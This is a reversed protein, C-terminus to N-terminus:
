MVRSLILGLFWGFALAAIAVIALLGKVRLYRRRWGWGLSVSEIKTQEAEPDEKGKLIWVPGAERAIRSFDRGDLLIAAKSSYIVNPFPQRERHLRAALELGEPAYVEAYRGAFDALRGELDRHERQLEDAREKQNGKLFFVDSLLVDPKEGNELAEVVEEPRHFHRIDYREGHRRDLEAHREQEDDVLWVKLRDALRVGQNKGFSRSSYWRRRVSYLLWPM